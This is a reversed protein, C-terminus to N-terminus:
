MVCCLERHYVTSGEQNDMKIYLLTYMDMGLKGVMGGGDKRRAVIHKNKLDTLRERNSWFSPDVLVRSWIEFVSSFVFLFFLNSSILLRIQSFILREERLRILM